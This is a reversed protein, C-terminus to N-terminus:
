VTIQLKFVYQLYETIYMRNFVNMVAYILAHLLDMVFQRPM